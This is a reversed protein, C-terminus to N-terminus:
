PSQRQCVPCDPAPTVPHATLMLESRDFQLWAARPGAELGLCLKLVALAMLSGITGADTHLAPALERVGGATAERAVCSACVDPHDAVVIWGGDAVLGGAVLPRRAAAACDVEALATDCAVLVDAAVGGLASSVSEAQMEPHVDLLEDLLRPQDHLIIRGIGAGALSLGAIELLAPGGALAVSSRLLREQGRGGVQPLIIQRSFREIQTDSLAM